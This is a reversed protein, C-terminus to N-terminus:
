HFQTPVYNVFLNLRRIARKNGSFDTKKIRLDFFKFTRDLMMMRHLHKTLYKEKFIVKPKSQFFDFAKLDVDGNYGSARQVRQKLSRM